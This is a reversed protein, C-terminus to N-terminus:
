EATIRDLWIQNKLQAAATLIMGWDQNTNQNNNNQETAFIVKPNQIGLVTIPKAV